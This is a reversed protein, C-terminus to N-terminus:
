PIGSPDSKHSNRHKKQLLLSSWFLEMKWFDSRPPKRSFSVTCNWRYM